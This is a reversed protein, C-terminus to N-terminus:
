QASGDAWGERDQSKHAGDHGKMRWCRQHGLTGPRTTSCAPAGNDLADLEDANIRPPTTINV